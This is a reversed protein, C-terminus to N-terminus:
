SIAKATHKGQFKAMHEDISQNELNSLASQFAENLHDIIPKMKYGRDTKDASNNDAFHLNRLISEFRLRTMVNELEKMGLM